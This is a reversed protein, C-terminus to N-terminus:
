RTSFGDSVEQDSNTSCSRMARCGFASFVVTSGHPTRSQRGCECDSALTYAGSPLLTQSSSLARAADLAAERHHLVFCHREVRSPGLSERSLLGASFCTPYVFNEADWSLKTPHPAIIALERKWSNTTMQPPNKTALPHWPFGKSSQSMPIHLGLCSHHNSRSTDALDPEWPTQAAHGNKSTTHVPTPPMVGM